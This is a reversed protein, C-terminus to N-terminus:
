RSPQVTLENNVEGVGDVARALEAARARAATDPATGRLVVRGGVTDVNINLASLRPDGALRANVAATIAMDKSKNAVADAANGLGEKADRGAERASGTASGTSGTGSTGSGGASSDSGGSQSGMGSSGGGTGRETQSGTGSTGSRGSQGNATVPRDCAQLLAASALLSLVLVPTRLPTTKM